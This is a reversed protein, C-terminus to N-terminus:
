DENPAVQYNTHKNIKTYTCMQIDAVHGAQGGGWSYAQNCSLSYM